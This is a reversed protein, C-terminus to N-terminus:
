MSIIISFGFVMKFNHSTNWTNCQYWHLYKIDQQLAVPFVTGFIKFWLRASGSELLSNCHSYKTLFITSHRLHCQMPWEQSFWQHLAVLLWKIFIVSIKSNGYPAYRKIKWDSLTLFPSDFRTFMKLIGHVWLISYFVM